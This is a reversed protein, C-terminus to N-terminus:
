ILDLSAENRSQAGDVFSSAKTLQFTVLYTEFYYNYLHFTVVLKCVNVKKM